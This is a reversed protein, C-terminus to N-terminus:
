GRRTNDPGKTLSQARRVMPLIVTTVMAIGGIWIVVALVHIARAIALAAMGDSPRNERIVSLVSLPSKTMFSTAIDRM